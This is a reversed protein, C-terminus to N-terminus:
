KIPKIMMRKGIEREWRKTQLILNIKPTSVYTLGAAMFYYFGIILFNNESSTLNRGLILGIGSAVASLRIYWTYGKIKARELIKPTDFYFTKSIDWTSNDVDLVGSEINYPTARNMAVEQQKLGVWLVVLLILLYVGVYFISLQGFIPIISSAFFMFFM